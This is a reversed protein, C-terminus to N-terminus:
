SEIFVYCYINNEYGDGNKYERYGKSHKCAVIYGKGKIDLEFTGQEKTLSNSTIQSESLKQGTLINYPNDTTSIVKNTADVFIAFSGEIISGDSEKPLFDELIAQFEPESDFVVGIGGIAISASDQIVAHYVYTPKSEYWSSDEFKSVVYNQSSQIAMCSSFENYHQINEGVRKQYSPNSVGRINGNQDYVYLVTYVTYLSNIYELIENIKRNNDPTNGQALMAGITPNLAWWRCDNAREYLNRDMVDLAINASFNAKEEMTKHAITHIHSISHAFVERVRAGIDQFYDLVPLFSKVKNKLSIIKGNLIVILLRTNIEQNLMHLDKPFLASDENLELKNQTDDFHLGKQVSISAISVWNLGKYGQYGETKTSCFFCANGNIKEDQLQLLPAKKFADLHQSHSSFMSQGDCGLLALQFGQEEAELTEVIRELEDKFKFSMCLLGVTKQQHRVKQIYYLPIEEYECIDIPQDYEIFDDTQLAQHFINAYSVSDLDPTVLSAVVKMEPTLLVIDRYVTYKNVYEELRTQMKNRELSDYDANHLYDSIASDTSLFGVDATREFLNRNLIDILAQSKLKLEIDVKQVYRKVLNDILTSKLEDFKEQTQSISDLLQPELGHNNIKGVMSVTTWWLNQNALVEDYNKVQKITSLYKRFDMKMHSM